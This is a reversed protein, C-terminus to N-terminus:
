KEKNGNEGCFTLIGGIFCFTALKGIKLGNGLMFEFEREREREGKYFLITLIMGFCVKLPYTQGFSIVINESIL